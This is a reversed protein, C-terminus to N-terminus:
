RVALVDIRYREARAGRVRRFRPDALFAEHAADGSRPYDPVPPLWHM